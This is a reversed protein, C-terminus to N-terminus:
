LYVEVTTRKVKMSDLEKIFELGKEIPLLVTGKSIVKVGEM